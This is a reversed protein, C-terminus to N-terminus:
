ERGRRQIWRWMLRVHRDSLLFLMGFVLLPITPVFTFGSGHHFGPLNPVLWIFFAGLYGSWGARIGVLLALTLLGLPLGAPQAPMEGLLLPIGLMSVGLVALLMAAVRRWGTPQEFRSGLEYYPPPPPPLLTDLNGPLPYHPLADTYWALALGRLEAERLLGALEADDTAAAGPIGDAGLGSTNGQVAQIDQATLVGYGATGVCSLWGRRGAPVEYQRVTLAQCLLTHVRMGRRQDVWLADRLSVSGLARRLWDQVLATLEAIEDARLTADFRGARLEQFLHKPTWHCLWDAAQQQDYAVLTIPTEGPSCGPAVPSFDPAVPSCGPAAAQRMAEQESNEM